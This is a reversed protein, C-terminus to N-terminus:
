RWYADMAEWSRREEDGRGNKEKNNLYGKQLGFGGVCLEVRQGRSLTNGESDIVKGQVHPLIKGVTKLRKELTDELSTMFSVPGTETMGYSILIKSLDTEARLQLALAESLASGASLACRLRSPKCGLKHLAEIEAVFMTPVSLLVTAQEQLVAQMVSNADYYDSAFM